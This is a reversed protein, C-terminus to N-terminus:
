EMGTTIYLGVRSRRLVFTWRSRFVLKTFCNYLCYVQIEKVFRNFFMRKKWIRRDERVSFEQKGDLFTIVSTPLRSKMYQWEEELLKRRKM